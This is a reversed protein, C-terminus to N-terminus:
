RPSPGPAPSGRGGPNQSGQSSGGGGNNSAGGNSNGSGSGSGSNGAREVEPLTITSPVLLDNVIHIVGNKAPIDATTILAGDVYIQGDEVQVILKEGFLTTLTQGDTLNGSSFKGPVIHYNLIDFLEEESIILTTSRKDGDSAKIAAFAQNRPAFVTYTNSASALTDALGAGIVYDYLSSFRTDTAM